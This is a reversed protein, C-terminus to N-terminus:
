RIPSGNLRKASNRPEIKAANKLNEIQLNLGQIMLDRDSVLADAVSLRQELRAKEVAANALQDRLGDSIARAQTVASAATDARENASRVDQRFQDLALAHTKGATDFREREAAIMGQLSHVVSAHANATTERDRDSQSKETL